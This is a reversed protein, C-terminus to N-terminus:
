PGFEEREGEADADADADGRYGQHDGAGAPDPGRQGVPYMQEKILISEQEIQFTLSVPQQMPYGGYVGQDFMHQQGYANPDAQVAGAYMNPQRFDEQQQMHQGM